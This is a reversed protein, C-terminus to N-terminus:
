RMVQKIWAKQNFVRAWVGPLDKIACGDGWSTVGYVVWSGRQECVLPGGSDGWCADTVEGNAAKGQACMMSETIHRDEHGFDKVCQYNSFVEVQGEQLIRPPSTFSKLTGWGTIWCSTGPEVERNPLKATGVCDNLTFPKKLKLLAFDYGGQAGAFQPHIVIRSAITTQEKGSTKNLKWEGAVVFVWDEGYVCHAATLVWNERILTGGCYPREGPADSLGVQHKWECESAPEGNV